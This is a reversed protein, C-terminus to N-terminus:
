FLTFFPMLPVHYCFIVCGCGSVCMYVVDCGCGAHCCLRLAYNYLKAVKMHEDTISIQIKRWISCTLTQIIWPNGAFQQLSEFEEWTEQDHNWVGTYDACKRELVDTPFLSPSTQPAPATVADFFLCESSLGGDDTTFDRTYEKQTRTV